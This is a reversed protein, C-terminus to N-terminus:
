LTASNLFFVKKTQSIGNISSFKVFGIQKLFNFQSLSAIFFDFWIMAVNKANLTHLSLLDKIFSHNVCQESKSSM